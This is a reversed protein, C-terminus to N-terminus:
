RSSPTGSVSFLGAFGSYERLGLKGNAYGFNTGSLARDVHRAHEVVEGSAESLLGALESTLNETAILEQLRDDSLRRPAEGASDAPARGEFLLREAEDAPVRDASAELLREALLLWDFAEGGILYQYERGGAYERPSEWLAVARMLADFPSQLREPRMTFPGATEIVRALRDDAGRLHEIAHEPDFPLKM